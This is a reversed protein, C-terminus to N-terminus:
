VALLWVLALTTLAVMGFAMPTLGWIVACAVFICGTLLEVAPYRWSIPTKCKLCKRGLLIFSLVPINEWASLTHGCSPCHSRPYSLNFKRDFPVGARMIPLRYAVVNLFSGICLGAWFVGGLYIAHVASTEPM